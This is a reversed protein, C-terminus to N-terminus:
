EREGQMEVAGLVIALNLQNTLSTGRLTASLAKPTHNFLDKKLVHFRM